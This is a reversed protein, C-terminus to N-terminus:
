FRSGDPATHGERRERDLPSLDEVQVTPLGATPFVGGRTFQKDMGSAHKAEDLTNFWGSAEGGLVDEFDQECLCLFGLPAKELHFVTRPWEAVTGTAGEVLHFHHGMASLQELGSRVQALAHDILATQQPREHHRPHNVLANRLLQYNM